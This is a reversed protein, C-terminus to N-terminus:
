HIILQNSSTGPRVMCENHAHAREWTLCTQFKQWYFKRRAIQKFCARVAIFATFSFVGSDWSYMRCCRRWFCRSCLCVLSEQSVFSCRWRLSCSTFRTFTTLLTKASFFFALFCFFVILAWLCRSELLRWHWVAPCRSAPQQPDFRLYNEGGHFHILLLLADLSLLLLVDLLKTNLSWTLLSSCPKFTFGEECVRIDTSKVHPHKRQQQFFGKPLLVFCRNFM